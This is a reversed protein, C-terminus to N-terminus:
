GRWLAPARYRRIPASGGAAALSGAEWNDGMMITSAFYSGIGGRTPTTIETDTPSAWTVGNYIAAITSGSASVRITDPFSIAEAGNSGLQTLSAAVVKYLQQGPIAENVGHWYYTEAANDFRCGPGFSRDGTDNAVVDLQCYMNATTTDFACRISGVAGGNACTVRNTNISWDETIETWSQDPGVTSSNATNFSETGTAGGRVVRQTYILDKLHIEYRGNSPMLPKWRGAGAHEILLEAAAASVTDAALTLGLDNGLRTRVTSGMADGFERGISADLKPVFMLAFGDLVTCDPRLDIAAWGPQDAGRPVYPDKYTGSGVYPALYYPM